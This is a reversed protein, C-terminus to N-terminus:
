HRYIGDGPRITRPTYGYKKQTDPSNPTSPENEGAHNRIYEDIIQQRIYFDINERSKKDVNLQYDTDVIQLRKEDIQDQLVNKEVYISYGEGYAKELDMTINSIKKRLINLCKKRMEPTKKYDEKVYFEIISKIEKFKNALQASATILAACCLAGSLSKLFEFWWAGNIIDAFLLGAVTMFGMILPFAIGYIMIEKKKDKSYQSYNELKKKDGRHKKENYEISSIKQENELEAIGLLEMNHLLQQLEFNLRRFLDESQKIEQYTKAM